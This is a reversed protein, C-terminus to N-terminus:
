EERRMKKKEKMKRIKRRKKKEKRQEVKLVAKGGIYKLIARENNSKLM